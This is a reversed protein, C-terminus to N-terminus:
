SFWSGQEKQFHTKVWKTFFWELKYLWKTKIKIGSFCQM